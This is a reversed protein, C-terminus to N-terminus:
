VNHVMQIFSLYWRPCLFGPKTKVQKTQKKSVFHFVHFFISYCFTLMIIEMGGSIFSILLKSQLGLM